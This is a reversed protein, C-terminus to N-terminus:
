WTNHQRTIRQFSQLKDPRCCNYHSVQIFRSTSTNYANKEILMRAPISYLLPNRLATLVPTSPPTQVLLILTFLKSASTHNSAQRHSTTLPVNLPHRGSSLRIIRPNMDCLMLVIIQSTKLKSPIFKHLFM